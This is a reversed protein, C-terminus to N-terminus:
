LSATLADVRTYRDGSNRSWDGDGLLQERVAGADLGFDALKYRHPLAGSEQAYGNLYEAMAAEVPGIDMDLFAYIRQMEGRWDRDMDEYHVDMMRVGVVQSRAQQMRDLKIQTKRLWERGIWRRDVHDSQVLMQNWVLSCSSGVVAAPDRHIFILRADPFVSLLAPLDLAHQPTKLLWPRTTCDGRFWANLRLLDAMMQYALTADQWECWRGYSPIRWQAEHKMGWATPVLLGLEEEPAFPSTPHIAATDPNALHLTRLTRSAFKHRRDKQRRFSTPPRAPGPPVPCIAEFLRLHSFREDAALLRHLRTTGSRMPGVVVIPPPLPRSRIEPFQAFWHEARLREKLLKLMHIYAVTRGVPNLAAEQRVAEILARMPKRFWPDGFERFGTQRMAREVLDEELLEPRPMLRSRWLLPLTRNAFNFLGSRPLPHSQVQM